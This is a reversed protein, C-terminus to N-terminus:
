ADGLGVQQKDLAAVAGTQWLDASPESSQEDGSSASINGSHLGCEKQPDNFLPHL